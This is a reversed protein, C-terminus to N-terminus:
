RGGSRLNVRQQATVIVEDLLTGGLYIPIITEGGSITIGNLAEKLASVLSTHEAVQPTASYSSVLSSDALTSAVNANASIDFDTPIATEMDEALGHMVDTIDNSMGEAAKVADKGNEDIAGALGDVLM